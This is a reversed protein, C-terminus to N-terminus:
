KSYNDKCDHCRTLPTRPGRLYVEPSGKFGQRNARARMAVSPPWQKAEQKFLGKPTSVSAPLSILYGFGPKDVGFSGSCLTLYPIQTFRVSQETPRSPLACKEFIQMSFLSNAHLSDMHVYCQQRYECRKVMLKCVCHPSGTEIKITHAAIQNGLCYLCQKIEWIVWPGKETQISNLESTSLLVTLLLLGSKM